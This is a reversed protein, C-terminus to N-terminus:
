AALQEMTCQRAAKDPRLRVLRTGHRFRGNSVHDFAVEVVLEPQLPTWESSRDPSSWRSPGGPAEGTFGPGGRLEMLRRTLVERDVAALGSTFGVHDLLGQANYLGLLLSAVAKGDGGGRFGGVVCDATRARKVKLMAREGERYPEDLRKAVVGEMLRDDIWAQAKARESTGETLRLHPDGFRGVFAELAARRRRFPERRLDRGEGDMLLDFLVLIAPTERALRRVRSEAPRLRMQLADFSFAGDLAILLEGDVVFREATIAALREAVEPFYRALPKGSKARLDIGRPDKFALCRFGDWKPEFWWGAEEPLAAASRAEMPRVDIM